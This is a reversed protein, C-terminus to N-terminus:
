TLAVFARSWAAIDDDAQYLVDLDIALADDRRRIGYRDLDRARRGSDHAGDPRFRAKHKPCFVRGENERWQLRAGRHTCRSSFAYARKQWRVLIVENEEDISVSDTAPIEYLREGGVARVPRATRVAHAVAPFVAVSTLVGLAALAADRLFARRDVSLPCEGCASHGRNEIPHAGDEHQTTSM